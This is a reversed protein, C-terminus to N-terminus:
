SLRTMLLRLNVDAWGIILRFDHSLWLDKKCPLCGSKNRYAILGLVKLLLQGHGCSSRRMRYNRWGLWPWDIFIYSGSSPIGDRMPLSWTFKIQSITGNAATDRPQYQQSCAAWAAWVSQCHHHHSHTPWFFLSMSTFCISFTRITSHTAHQALLKEARTLPTRWDPGGSVALLPWSVGLMGGQGPLLSLVPLVWNVSVWEQGHYM